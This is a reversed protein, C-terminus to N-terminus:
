QTPEPRFRVRGPEVTVIAGAALSQGYREIAELVAGGHHLASLDVIRIIGSHRLGGVIALEGFDRDLTVLVRQESQALRLLKEDGPDAPLEQAWLVDHGANM